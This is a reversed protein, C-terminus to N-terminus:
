LVIWWFFNKELDPLFKKIEEQNKTKLLKKAKSIDRLFFFDFAQKWKKKHLALFTFFLTPIAFPYRPLKLSSQNTKSLEQAQKYFDHNYDLKKYNKLLNKYLNAKEKYRKEKKIEYLFEARLIQKTLNYKLSRKSIKSSHWDGKTDTGCVHYLYKQCWLTLSVHIHLRKNPPPSSPSIFQHKLHKITNKKAFIKKLDKIKKPIIFFDIDSHEDFNGRAYSGGLLIMCDPLIRQLEKHFTTIKQM